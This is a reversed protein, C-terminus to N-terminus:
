PSLVVSLGGNSGSGLGTGGGSSDLVSCHLLESGREANSGLIGEFALALNGRSELANGSTSFLVGCDDTRGVGEGGLSGRGLLLTLQLGLALM